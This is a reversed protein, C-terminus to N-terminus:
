EYVIEFSKFNESDKQWKIEVREVYAPTPGKQCWKIFEELKEKPGEALAEVSGDPNNKVWGVLGLKQAEIRASHRFFVGQVQGYVVIHVQM